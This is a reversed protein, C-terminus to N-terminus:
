EEIKFVFDCHPNGACMNSSQEVTAKPNITKAVINPMTDWDSIDKPETKWPCRTIRIRNISKTRELVTGEMGCLEFYIDFWEGITECDNGEIKFIKLLSNTLSKIRDDMKDLMEIM